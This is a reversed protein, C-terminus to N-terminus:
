KIVNEMPGSPYELAAFEPDASRINLLNAVSM